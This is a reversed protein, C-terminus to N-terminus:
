REEGRGPWRLRKARVIRQKCRSRRGLNDGRVLLDVGGTIAIEGGEGKVVRVAPRARRGAAAPKTLADRGDDGPADDGIASRQEAEVIFGGRRLLRRANRPPM